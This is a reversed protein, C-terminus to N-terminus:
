THEIEYYALKRKEFESRLYLDAPLFFPGDHSLTQEYQKVFAAAGNALCSLVYESCTAAYEINPPTRRGTIHYLALDQVSRWGYRRRSIKFELLARRAVEARINRYAPSVHRLRLCEVRDKERQALTSLRVGSRKTLSGPRSELVHLHGVYLMAHTWEAADAPREHLLQAAKVWSMESSAKKTLIIDGVLLDEHRPIRYKNITHADESLFPVQFISKVFAAGFETRLAELSIKESTGVDSGSSLDRDM